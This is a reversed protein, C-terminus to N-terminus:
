HLSGSGSGRPSKSSPGTVFLKETEAQEAKQREEFDPDNKNLWDDALQDLRPNSKDVKLFIKRKEVTTETWHFPIDDLSALSESNLAELKEENAPDLLQAFITGIADVCLGLLDQITPSSAKPDFDASAHVTTAALQDKEIVSVSVLLEDPYVAGTAEFTIDASGGQSERFTKLKALGEDFNTAFVERIMQLYDVPLPSSRLTDGKRREMNFSEKHCTRSRQRYIKFRSAFEISKKGRRIKIVATDTPRHKALSKEIDNPENAQAGDVQTVIDGTKLGANDAPGGRVLNTVLVGQDTGLAYYRAIPPTM